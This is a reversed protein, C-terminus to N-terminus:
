GYFKNNIILFSCPLIISQLHEYNQCNTCYETPVPLPCGIRENTEKLQSPSRLKTPQKNQSPLLYKSSTYSNEMLKIYTNKAQRLRALIM